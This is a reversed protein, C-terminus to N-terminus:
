WWFMEPLDVLVDSRLSDVLSGGGGGGWFFVCFIEVLRILGLGGLLLLLLLLLLLFLLLFLWFFFVPHSLNKRSSRLPHTSRLRIASEHHPSRM